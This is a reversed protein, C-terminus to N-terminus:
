AKLRLKIYFHCNAFCEAFFYTSITYILKAMSMHIYHPLSLTSILPLTSTNAAVHPYLPHQWAISAPDDVQQGNIWVAEIFEDFANNTFKCIGCSLDSPRYIMSLADNIPM